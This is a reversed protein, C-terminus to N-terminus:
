LGALAQIAMDSKGDENLYFQNISGPDNCFPMAITQDHVSGVHQFQANVRWDECDRGYLAVEQYRFKHEYWYEGGKQCKWASCKPRYRHQETIEVGWDLCQPHRFKTEIKEGVAQTEAVDRQRADEIDVDSVQGTSWDECVPTLWAEDMSSGENSEFEAVTWSSTCGDDRIDKVQTMYYTIPADTERQSDPPCVIDLNGDLGDVIWDDCGYPLRMETYGQIEWSVMLVGDPRPLSKSRKLWRSALAPTDLVGLPLPTVLVPKLLRM